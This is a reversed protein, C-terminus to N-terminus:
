VEQTLIVPPMELLYGLLKQHGRTQFRSNQSFVLLTERDVAARVEEGLSSAAQLCRSRPFPARREGLCLFRAELPLMDAPTLM